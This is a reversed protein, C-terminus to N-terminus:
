KLKRCACALSAQPPVAERCLCNACAQANSDCSGICNPGLFCFIWDPFPLNACNKQNCPTCNVCVQNAPGGGANCGAMCDDFKATGAYQACATCDAYGATCDAYCNDYCTKDGTCKSTCYKGCEEGADARVEQVPIALAAITLLVMALSICFYSLLTCLRAM